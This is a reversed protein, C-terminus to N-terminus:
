KTRKEREGEEDGEGGMGDWKSLSHTVRAQIRDTKM